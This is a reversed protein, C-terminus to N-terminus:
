KELGKNYKNLLITYKYLYSHTEFGQMSYQEIKKALQFLNKETLENETQKVISGLDIRHKIKLNKMNIQGDEEQTDVCKVNLIIEQEIM